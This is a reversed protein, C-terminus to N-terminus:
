VNLKLVVESAGVSSLYIVLIDIIDKLKRNCVIPISMIANLVVVRKVAGLVLHDIIKLVRLDCFLYIVSQFGM